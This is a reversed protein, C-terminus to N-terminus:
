KLDRIIQLVKLKKDEPFKHYLRVIELVKGDLPSSNSNTCIISVPVDFFDAIKFIYSNYSHSKGNKWASFQSKNIGLYDTLEKQSRKELYLLRSVNDIIGLNAGGKRTM